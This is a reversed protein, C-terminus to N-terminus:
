HSLIVRKVVSMYAERWAKENVKKSAVDDVIRGLTIAQVLITAAAPTIGSNLWGRAQMEANQYVGDRFISLLASDILAAQNEFHLSLPNRAVGTEKLVM